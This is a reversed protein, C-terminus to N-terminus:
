PGSEMGEWLSEAMVPDNSLERMLLDAAEANLMDSLNLSTEERVFAAFAQLPLEPNLHRWRAYVRLMEEDSFPLEMPRDYEPPLM